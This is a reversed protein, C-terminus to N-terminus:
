RYGRLTAQGSAVTDDDAGVAEEVVNLGTVARQAAGSSPPELEITAVRTPRRDAIADHDLDDVVTLAHDDLQMGALAGQDAARDHSALAVLHDEGVGAAQQCHEGHGLRGGVQAHEISEEDEGAGVLEVGRDADVLDVEVRGALKLCLELDVLADAVREDGGRISCAGPEVLQKAQQISVDADQCSRRADALRAEQIPEGARTEEGGLDGFRGPLATVGGSAGPQQRNASSEQGIGGPDSRECQGPDLSGIEVAVEALEQRVEPAATEGVAAM